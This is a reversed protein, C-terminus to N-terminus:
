ILAVSKVQAFLSTGIKLELHDWSKRTIRALLQEGNNELRLVVNIKAANLHAFNEVTVPLVNLISSADARFKALSVDQALIRIRIQNNQPIKSPLWLTGGAIEVLTLEYQEDYQLAKAEFVTAADSAKALPLDLRAALDKLEGIEKIKGEELLILYDALREVEFVDHTVYFIPINLTQHLRDLYPIIDNKNDRDLASLPEDMLLLRPSSLLARGIAIRQREGGSLKNPRRELLKEIGLLDIIEEFKITSIHACRKAGFQLNEKVSLHPFLSAEQFVYGLPRRYTPLFTKQDQWIDNEIRLLGDLRQLGAMCRLVSTKGCGSVGFLAIIGKAPTQFEVDLKFHGLQGYFRAEIM